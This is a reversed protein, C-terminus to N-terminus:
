VSDSSSELVINRSGNRHGMEAPCLFHIYKTGGRKKLGEPMQAHGRIGAPVSSCFSRFARAVRGYFWKHVDNPARSASFHVPPLSLAISIGARKRDSSQENGYSPSLRCGRRFGCHQSAQASGELSISEHRDRGMMVALHDCSSPRATKNFPLTEVALRIGLLYDNGIM